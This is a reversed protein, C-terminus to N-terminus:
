TSGYKKKAFAPALQGLMSFYPKEVVVMDGSATFDLFLIPQYKYTISIPRAKNNTNNSSSSTILLDADSDDDSSVVDEGISKDHNNNSDKAPTMTIDDEDRKRKEHTGNSLKAAVGATAASSSSSSSSASIKITGIFNAGYLVLTDSNLKSSQPTTPDFCAGLIPERLAGFSRLVNASIAQAWNPINRQDVDFIQITNNPLAVVAISANSPSFAIDVPPLEVSPLAAHYQLSDLNFVHLRGTMDATLLWQGDTSTTMCALNPVSENSSDDEEESESADDKDDEEESDGAEATHKGNPANRGALARGSSTHSRHQGFVRLVTVDDHKSEPLQLVVVHSGPVTAMILKSSDKTFHLHSAAQHEYAKLATQAALTATL